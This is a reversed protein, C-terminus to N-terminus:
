RRQRQRRAIVMLGALATGLLWVAPPLPTSITDIVVQHLASGDPVFIQVIEWDPNPWL